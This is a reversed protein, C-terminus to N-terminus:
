VIRTKYMHIKTHTIICQFIVETLTLVSIAKWQLGNQRAKWNVIKKKEEKEKKM